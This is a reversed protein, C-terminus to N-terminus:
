SNLTKYHISAPSVLPFTTGRRFRPFTTCRRLRPFTPCGGTAACMFLHSDLRANKAFSAVQHKDVNLDGVVVGNTLCTLADSELDYGGAFRLISTFM